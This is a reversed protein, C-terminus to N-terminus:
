VSTEPSLGDSRLMRRLDVIMQTSIDKSNPREFSETEDGLTVVVRGDHQEEVTAVAQLLSLVAWWEINHSAPHQFLKELTDRHHNSLHIGDIPTAM